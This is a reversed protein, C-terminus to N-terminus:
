GPVGPESGWAEVLDDIRAAVSADLLSHGAFLRVGAILAPDTEFRPSPADGSGEPLAALLTARAAEDLEGASVIRLEGRERAVALAHHAEEDLTALHEGFRTRLAVELDTGALDRWGRVLADSVLAQVGRRLSAEADQRERALDARARERREVVESSLAELRDERLGELEQELRAERAQRARRLESHEAELAQARAEAEARAREAAAAAAAIGAEREAMVRTVPGWLFRRLLWLLILFNLVQAFLTFLDIGM